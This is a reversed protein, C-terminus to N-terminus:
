PYDIEGPKARYTGAPRWNTLDIGETTQGPNVVVAAGSSYTAELGSTAYGVVQYRGPPIEDFSYWTQGSATGVWWWYTSELNYALVVVIPVTGPYSFTGEIGGPATGTNTPLVASPVPASTVTPVVGPPLPIAGPGGYWDCLDVNTVTEGAAVTVPLLSHDTCATTLGCPVAPTYAGGIEFGPRWAYAIYTGPPLEISFTGQNPAIAVETATGAATNELYLTMAPISESPYCMRGSLTGVAAAQPQTSTPPSVVAEATLTGAVSTSVEVDSIGAPRNCAASALGVMLVIFVVRARRMSGGMPYNM